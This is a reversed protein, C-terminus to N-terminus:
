GHKIKTNEYDSKKFKAAKTVVAKATGSQAAATGTTSVIHTHSNFSQVLGNLKNTLEEIKILGGLDGSNFSFDDILFEVSEYETAEILKWEETGEIQIALAYAGKKPYAVLGNNQGVIPRLRVDFYELGDDELVCTCEDKNVSKVIALMSTEPNGFFAALKQRVENVTEKAM